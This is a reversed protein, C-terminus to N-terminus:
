DLNKSLFGTLNKALKRCVEEQIRVRDTQDLLLDPDYRDNQIFQAQTEGSADASITGSAMGKKAEPVIVLCSISFSRAYRNLLYPISLKKRTEWRAETFTLHVLSENEAINEAPDSLLRLNGSFGIKLLEKELLAKINNKAVPETNGASDYYLAIDGHPAKAASATTFVGVNIILLLCFVKKM